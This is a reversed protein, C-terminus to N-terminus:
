KYKQGQKYPLVQVRHQMRQLRAVRVIDRFSYQHKLRPEHMSLFLVGSILRMGSSLLFVFPIGTILWLGASDALIGGVIPGVAQASAVLMSYQAIQLPRTKKDTVDLVVNYFALETAAWAAGSMIQTPWILWLTDARINFWLFMTFATGLVGIVILVRDGFRDALKGMPRYFLIQSLVYTATAIGFFRTELHLDRLMYASAFPSALYASFRFFMARACFGSFPQKFKFVDKLTYHHNTTRRPETMTSFSWMTIYGFAAALMFLIAYATQSADGIASIFFGAVLMTIMAVIGTAKNVRGLYRGRAEPPVIDAVLSVVSPERLTVFFYAKFYFLVVVCKM